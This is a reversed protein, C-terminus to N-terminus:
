IILVGCNNEVSLRRWFDMQHEPSVGVPGALFRGREIKLPIDFSKNAECVAEQIVMWAGVSGRVAYGISRLAELVDPDDAPRRYHVKADFGLVEVAM